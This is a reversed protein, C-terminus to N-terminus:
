KRKRAVFRARTYKYSAVNVGHRGAPNDKDSLAQNTHQATKNEYLFWDAGM